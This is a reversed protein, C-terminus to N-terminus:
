WEVWVETLEKILQHSLRAEMKVTRGPRSGGLVRNRGCSERLYGLRM